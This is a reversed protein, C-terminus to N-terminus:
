EPYDVRMLYLGDAPATPGGKSRDKAKLATKVDEPRWKGLGVLSLTGAINRVQHHLFSQAELEITIRQQGPIKCEDQIIELRDLTRIPSKAQCDSDRFTTFDHHGLLYAAGKRMAEIDLNKGIHWALGKELALMGSRNVIKYRYLKNTADFRAHFTEHAKEVKIISIPHPRLYANVAKLIAFNDMPKSFPELDVHFVQACAHVGADTRGAVTISVNQNSFGTISEEVIQQISIVNRQRQWGAYGQGNYELTMKYRTLPKDKKEPVNM